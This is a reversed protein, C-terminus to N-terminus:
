KGSAPKKTKGVDKDARARLMEENKQNIVKSVEANTKADRVAAAKKPPVIASLGKKAGKAKAGAAQRKMSKQKAGAPLSTKKKMKHQTM